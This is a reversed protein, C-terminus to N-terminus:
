NKTISVDLGNNPHYTWSASFNDWDGTQVGMLSSTANMRTIIIEPIDLANLICFESSYELASYDDEGSGDLYMTQGDEGIQVDDYGDEGASLCTDLASQFQTASSGTATGIVISFVAAVGIAGLVIAPTPVKRKQPATEASQSEYSSTPVPTGVAQTPKAQIPVVVKGCDPCFKADDSMGHGCNTCFAM